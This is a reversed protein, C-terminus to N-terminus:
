QREGGKQGGSCDHSQGGTGCGCVRGDNVWGPRSRGHEIRGLRIQGVVSVIMPVAMPMVRDEDAMAPMPINVARVAFPVIGNAGGAPEFVASVIDSDLPANHPLEM